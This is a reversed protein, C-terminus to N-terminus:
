DGKEAEDLERLRAELWARAAARGTNGALLSTYHSDLEWCNDCLGTPINLGSIGNGCIKCPVTDMKVPMFRGIITM